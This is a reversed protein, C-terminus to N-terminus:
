RPEPPSGARSPDGLSKLYAVLDILEGVTMSQRYEPMISLGRNDTYGPGDLILANPNMISEVLYGAHHRGADSLDPGPRTAAPFREGQVAHCAFCGLKVFAARGRAVDGPPPTVTAPQRVGSGARVEAPAAHGPPRRDVAVHRPPTLEGLAATCAYVLLAIISEAMVYTALRSAAGEPTPRGRPGFLALRSVRFVRVGFGKLGSGAGLLPLIVYRNVAGLWLLGAVVLVKVILVRGYATTWLRSATEVQSWANYIGTLSVAGVCLGALLSFRRAILAVSSLPLVARRPFVVLALGILAGIWASAAVVHVWDVAVSMTLDGWDVAHGALSVTMAVGLVVLLGLVRLPGLRALSLPIALASVAVRAGLIAGLHTRAVVTPVADIAAALGARSMAQTRIVLDALSALTLVILAATIWRHLRARVAALDPGRPVIPRELVFGGIVLALSVLGLGRVLAVLLAPQDV